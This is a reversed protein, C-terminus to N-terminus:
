ILNKLVLIGYLVAALILFFLAFLLFGYTFGKGMSFLDLSVNKFFRTIKNVYM